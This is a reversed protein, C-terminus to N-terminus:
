QRSDPYNTCRPDPDYLAAINAKKAWCTHGARTKPPLSCSDQLGYALLLRSVISRLAWIHLEQAALTTRIWFIRVASRCCLLCAACRRPPQCHGYFSLWKWGCCLCLRGLLRCRKKRQLPQHLKQTHYISYRLKRSFCFRQWRHLQDEHRAKVRCEGEQFGQFHSRALCQGCLSQQRSPCKRSGTRLVIVNQWLRRWFSYLYAWSHNSTPLLELM